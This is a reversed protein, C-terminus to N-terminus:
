AGDDLRQPLREQDERDRSIRCPFKFDIGKMMSIQLLRDRIQHDYQRLIVDTRNILTVTSGFENFIGAFENAIYGAGAILIRKPVNELHFAENSTIGLEHGPCSPVHPTAGTAILIYKASVTKGSALKVEHPGVLEAREDIITAGHNTLTERYVGNIRDVEEFVNDRLRSWSFDCQDPVDWGFRRADKLDEAFHAGYVLLKKPVCGRIVCTGGVRYEEAIAVKAGHSAAVRSARVGGSGAGITFLDYDYHAM